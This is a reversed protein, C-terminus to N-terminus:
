LFGEVSTAHSIGGVRDSTFREVDVTKGSNVAYSVSVEEFVCDRSPTRSIQM